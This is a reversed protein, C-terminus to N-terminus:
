KARHMKLVLIPKDGGRDFYLVTGFGCPNRLNVKRTSLKGLTRVQGSQTLFEMLNPKSINLLYQINEPQTHTYPHIFLYM